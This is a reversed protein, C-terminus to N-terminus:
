KAEFIGRLINKLQIELLDKVNIENMKESRKLAGNFSIWTASEFSNDLELSVLVSLPDELILFWVFNSWEKKTEASDFKLGIAKLFKESRSTFIRVM